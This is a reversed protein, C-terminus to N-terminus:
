RPDTGLRFGSSLLRSYPVHLVGGGELGISLTAPGLSAVSGSSGDVEISDGVSVARRVVRGAAVDAAVERGGLGTLLGFALAVAATLGAVLIQLIVTDIGLQALALVIALGLIAWRVGVELPAASIAARETARVVLRGVVAALARGAILILGASLVRPLYSLVLTPVPDLAGPSLLGIAIAVAAAVVVWFTLSAADGSSRALAPTKRGALSRRVVLALLGAIVLGGALVGGARILQDTDM